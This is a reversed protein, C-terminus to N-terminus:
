AADAVSQNGDNTSEKKFLLKEIKDCISVRLNVIEPSRLAETVKSPTTDFKNAIKYREIGRLELVLMNKKDETTLTM